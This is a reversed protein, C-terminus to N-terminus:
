IFVFWNVNNIEFRQKPEFKRTTTKEPHKGCRFVVTHHSSSREFQAPWKPKTTRMSANTPAHDMKEEPAARQCITFQLLLCIIKSSLFNIEKIVRFFILEVQGFILVNSNAILLTLVILYQRKKSQM